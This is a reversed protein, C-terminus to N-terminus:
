PCNGLGVEVVHHFLDYSGVDVNSKHFAPCCRLEAACNVYARLIPDQM